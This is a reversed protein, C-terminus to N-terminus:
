VEVAGLVALGAVYGSRLSRVIARVRPDMVVELGGWPCQSDSASTSSTGTRAATLRLWRRDAPPGSTQRATDATRRGTAHIPLPRVVPPRTRTHRVHPEGEIPAM